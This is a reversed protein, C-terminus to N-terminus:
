PTDFSGPKLSGRSKQMLQWFAEMEAVREVSLRIAEADSAVKLAKRARRISDADVFYSKRTLRSPAAMKVGM